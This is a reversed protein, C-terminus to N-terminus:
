RGSNPTFDDERLDPDFPFARVHQRYTSGSPDGLVGDAFIRNGKTFQFEM